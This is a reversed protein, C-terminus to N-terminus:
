FNILKFQVWHPDTESLLYGYSRYSGFSHYEYYEVDLENNMLFDVFARADITGRSSEHCITHFLEKGSALYDYEEALKTTWHYMWRKKLDGESLLRVKLLNFRIFPKDM